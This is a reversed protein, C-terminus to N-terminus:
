RYYRWDNQFLYDCEDGQAKDRETAVNRRAPGGVAHGMHADLVIAHEFSQGVLIYHVDGLVVASEQPYGGIGSEVPKVSLHEKREGCAVGREYAVRDVAEEVLLLVVEQPYAGFQAEEFHVTGRKDGLFDFLLQYGLFWLYIIHHRDLAGGVPLRQPDGVAMDVDDVVIYGRALELDVIGVIHGAEAVGEVIHQLIAEAIEEHGVRSSAHAPDMELRPAEVIECM